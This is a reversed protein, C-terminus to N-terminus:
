LLLLSFYFYEKYKDSHNCGFYDLIFVKETCMNGHWKSRSTIKLHASPMGMHAALRDEDLAMRKPPPEMKQSALMNRHHHNLSVIPTVSTPPATSRSAESMRNTAEEMARAAAEMARADREALTRLHLQTSAPVGNEEEGSSCCGNSLKMDVAGYAQLPFGVPFSLRCHRGRAVCTEEVIPECLKACESHSVTSVSAVIDVRPFKVCEPHSVTSVSAVIDVRPFKVCEPLM